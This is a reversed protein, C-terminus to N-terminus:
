QAKPTFIENSKYDTCIRVFCLSTSLEVTNVAQNMRYNIVSQDGIEKM